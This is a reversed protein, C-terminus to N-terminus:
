WMIISFCTGPAMSWMRTAIVLAIQRGLHTLQRNLRESRLTAADREQSVQSVAM